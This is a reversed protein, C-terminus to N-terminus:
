RSSGEYVKTFADYSCAPSDLAPQATVVVPSGKIDVLSMFTIKCKSDSDGFLEGIGFDSSPVRTNDEYQSLWVISSLRKEQVPSTVLSLNGGIYNLMSLQWFDFHPDVSAAMM